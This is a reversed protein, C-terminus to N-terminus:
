EVNFRLSRFDIIDNDFETCKLNEETKHEFGIGRFYVMFPLKVIYQVKM